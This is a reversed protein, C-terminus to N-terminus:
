SPNKIQYLDNSICVKYVKYLQLEHTHSEIMQKLHSVCMSHKQEHDKPNLIYHQLHKLNLNLSITVNLNGKKPIVLKCENHM